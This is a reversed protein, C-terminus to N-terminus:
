LLIKTELKRDYDSWENENVKEKLQNIKNMSADITDAYYLIFSEEMNCAKPSGYELKGHHQTICGKIRNIFDSSFREPNKRYAQDIMQVGIVIHGELEGRLTYKFPGDYYLEYIKGIDHLKAALVAIEKHRCDYKEALFATLEMVGLTHEALGGLYNHHMSVGGIGKKFKEIFENDQFFFRDLCKGEESVIYKKSLEDIEKMIENIDKKVTPLYDEINFESVFEYKKVDLNANKIGKVNLISGVSIDNNKCPINAKAEGTKDALLCVTKSNDKFIIKFVMLNIDFESGDKVGSLYMNKLCM